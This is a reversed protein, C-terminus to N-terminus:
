STVVSLALGVTQKCANLQSQFAKIERTHTAIRFADRKALKNDGPVSHSTWRDFAVKFSETNDRLTELAKSLYDENFTQAYAVSGGDDRLVTELEELVSEVTSLEAQVSQVVKPADRLDNILTILLHISHATATTISLPDAM